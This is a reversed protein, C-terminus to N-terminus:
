YSKRPFKKEMEVMDAFTEKKLEEVLSSQARKLIRHAQCTPMNPCSGADALCDNLAIQGEIATIVNLITIKDSPIALRVGGQSGRQTAVLGAHALLQVTKKLFDEPIDLKMSIVRTNLLQGFPVKSLELVTRIAYDSQRTIQM